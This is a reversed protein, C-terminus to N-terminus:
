TAVANGVVGDDAARAAPFCLTVTRVCDPRKEPAPNQSCPEREAGNVFRELMNPRDRVGAVAGSAVSLYNQVVELKTLKVDRSFYRKDPNTIQVERGDISLVEAAQKKAM